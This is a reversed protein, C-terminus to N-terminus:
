VTTTLLGFNVLKKETWHPLSWLQCRWIGSTSIEMRELSIRAWLGRVCSCESFMIGGAVVNASAYCSLVLSFSSGVSNLHTLSHTPSLMGGSVTYAMEPIAKGPLICVFLAVILKVKV